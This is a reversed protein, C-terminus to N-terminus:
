LVDLVRLESRERMFDVWGRRNRESDTQALPKSKVAAM